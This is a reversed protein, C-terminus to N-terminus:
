ETKEVLCDYHETMNWHLVNVQVESGDKGYTDSNRVNGNTAQYVKVVVRGGFMNVYGRLIHQAEIQKWTGNHLMDVPLAHRALKKLEQLANDELAVLGIEKAAAEASEVAAKAIQRCFKAQDGKWGLSKRAANEM